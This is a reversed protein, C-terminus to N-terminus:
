ARILAGAAIRHLEFLLELAARPSLTDPDLAALRALLESARERQASPEPPPSLPLEVQPSYALANRASRAEIGAQCGRRGPNVHRPRQAETIRVEGGSRSASTLIM